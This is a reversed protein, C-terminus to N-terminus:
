QPEPTTTDPEPAPEIADPVVPAEVEFGLSLKVEVPQGEYTAPEYRLAAVVAIAVPDLAPDPSELVVIEFPVGDTGVVYEITIQGRPPEDRELLEPPYEFARPGVVLK